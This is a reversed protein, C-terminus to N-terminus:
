DDKTTPFFPNIQAVGNALWKEVVSVWRGGQSLVECDYVVLRNKDDYWLAQVFLSLKMKGLCADFKLASLASTIKRSSV